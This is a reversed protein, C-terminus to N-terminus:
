GAAYCAGIGDGSKLGPKRREANSATSNNNPATPETQAQCRSQHFPKTIANTTPCKKKNQLTKRTERASSNKHAAMKMTRPRNVITEPWGAQVVVIAIESAIVTATIAM